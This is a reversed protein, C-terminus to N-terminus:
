VNEGWVTHPIYECQYADSGDRGWVYVCPGGMDNTLFVHHFILNSVQTLDQHVYQMLDSIVTDTHQEIMEVSTDHWELKIPKTM